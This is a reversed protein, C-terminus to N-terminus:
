NLKPECKAAAKKAAAIQREATMTTQSPPFIVTASKEISEMPLSNVQGAVKWVKVGDEVFSELIFFEVAPAGILSRSEAPDEGSLILTGPKLEFGAGSNLIKSINEATEYFLLRKGTASAIELYRDKAGFGRYAPLFDMKTWKPKGDPVAVKIQIDDNIRLVTGAGVNVYTPKENLTLDADEIQIDRLPRVAGGKGNYSLDLLLTKSGLAYAPSLFALLFAIACPKM